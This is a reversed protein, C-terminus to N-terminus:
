RNSNNNERKVTSTSPNRRIRATMNTTTPQVSPIEQYLTVSCTHTTIPKKPQRAGHKHMSGCASLGRWHKSWHPLGQALYPKRHKIGLSPISTWTFRKNGGSMRKPTQHVKYSPGDELRLPSFWANNTLHVTELQAGPHLINLPFPRENTVYRIWRKVSLM